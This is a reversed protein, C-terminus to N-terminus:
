SGGALSHHRAAKKAQLPAPAPPGGAGAGSWAAQEYTPVQARKLCAHHASKPNCEQWLRWVARVLYRKLARIAERRTKGESQRRALYIQAAPCCRAQTLAIRYLIANLRRNGGPNLRHRVRGASSAELPAVGAHAALQADTLFRRGPGLIGALAGATLLDVGRLQTLPTYHLQASKRIQDALDKAQRLALELREATRRIVAARQQDLAHQSTTTYSTVMRLGAQTKLGPLHAKYEPDIQLLLQHIQNRLRTAETLAGERETVLLDLIATEDDATVQPLTSSDERVLQAVALADLKDSKGPKRAKRRREATWRPNIEYVTEGEAVLYQALGRGYNWAGEIGWQRPGAFTTVWQHLSHWGEPSNPGQWQDLITGADNLALAKHLQKHADIGVIIM